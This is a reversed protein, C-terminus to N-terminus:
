IKWVVGGRSDIFMEMKHIPFGLCPSSLPNAWPGVTLLSHPHSGLGPLRVGLCLEVSLCSPQSPLGTLQVRSGVAGRHSALDPFQGRPVETEVHPIPLAQDQDSQSYRGAESNRLESSARLSFHPCMKWSFFIVGASSLGRGPVPLLALMGSVFRLSVALQNSRKLAISSKSVVLTHRSTFAFGFWVLVSESLLRLFTWPHNGM